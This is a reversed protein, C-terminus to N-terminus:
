PDTDQPEDIGNEFVKGGEAQLAAIFGDDENDEDGDGFGEKRKLLELKKVDIGMRHFAVIANQRGIQVRTLADEVGIISELADRTENTVQKPNITPQGGLPSAGMSGTVRTSVAIMGNRNTRELDSLIGIRGLMRKERVAGLLIEQQILIMPDDDAQQIMEQEELTLSSFLIREFEGTKLARKNDLPAPPVNGKDKSNTNGPQGGRKRKPTSREEKPTSREEWKDKVKWGSVSKEPIGLEEAIQRLSKKGKAEQWLQFAKDREPSRQRPM